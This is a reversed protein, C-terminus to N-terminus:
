QYKEVLAAIADLSNFNVPIIEEYPIELGFEMSLETIIGVLTISDLIGGDVLEKSGEFDIEPFREELIAKVKDRM